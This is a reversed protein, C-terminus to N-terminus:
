EQRVWERGLVVLGSLVIALGATVMLAYNVLIALEQSIPLLWINMELMLYIGVGGVSLGALIALSATLIRFDTRGIVLNAVARRLQDETAVM